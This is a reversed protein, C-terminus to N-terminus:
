FHVVLKSYCLMFTKLQGDFPPSMLFYDHTTTSTFNEGQFYADLQAGWMEIKRQWIVPEKQVFMTGVLYMLM